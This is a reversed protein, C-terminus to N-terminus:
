KRVSARSLPALYLGPVINTTNISEERAIPAFNAEGLGRVNIRFTEKGAADIRMEVTGFASRPSPDVVRRLQARAVLSGAAARAARVSLFYFLTAVVFAGLTLTIKWNRKM